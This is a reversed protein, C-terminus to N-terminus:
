QTQIQGSTTVYITRCDPGPCTAGKRRISIAAEVGAASSNNIFTTPNPPEFFIDPVPQVIELVDNPLVAIRITADSADFNRSETSCDTTNADPGAYIRYGDETFHVGYGCRYTGQVLSGALALAQAERVADTTTIVVQNLDVRSRSFNAIMLGTIIVTISAVVLVEILTFGSVLRAGAEGWRASARHHARQPTRTFGRTNIM